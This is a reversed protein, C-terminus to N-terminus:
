KAEEQVAYLELAANDAVVSKTGDMRQFHVTGKAHHAEVIISYVGSKSINVAFESMGKGNGAYLTDGDPEKIEMYISGKVTEFQVALTDGASLEMAFRDTGTMRDIDLRYSGAEATRSGVFCDRGELFDYGLLAEIEAPQGYLKDCIDVDQLYITQNQLHEATKEPLSVSLSKDKASYSWRYRSIVDWGLLMEAPLIRGSEDSIAFDADDTVLVKCNEMYVDGLRINPIVATQLARVMGNNNGARLVEKEPAARLRRLLSQAIVTMGAGTDFLATSRMDGIQVNVFLLNAFRSSSQCNTM